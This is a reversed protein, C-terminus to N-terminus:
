PKAENKSLAAQLAEIAECADITEVLCEEELSGKLAEGVDSSAIEEVTEWSYMYTYAAIAPCIIFFSSLVDSAIFSLTNAYYTGISIICWYRLSFTLLCVPLLERLSPRTPIWVLNRQRV